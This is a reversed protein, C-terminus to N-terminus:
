DDDECEEEDDDDEPDVYFNLEEEPCEERLLALCRRRSTESIGFSETLHDCRDCTAQVGQVEGGDETTLTVEEIRTTVRRM